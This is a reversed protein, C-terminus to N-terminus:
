PMRYESCSSSSPMKALTADGPLLPSGCVQNASATGKKLVLGKHCLCYIMIHMYHYIIIYVGTSLIFTPFPKILCKSVLSLFWILQLAEPDHRSPPHNEVGLRVFVDSHPVRLSHIKFRLFRM